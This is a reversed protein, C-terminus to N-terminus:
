GQLRAEQVPHPGQHRQGQPSQSYSRRHPGHVVNGTTRGEQSDTAAYTGGPAIYNQITLNFGAPLYGRATEVDTETLLPVHTLRFMFAEPHQEALGFISSLLAKSTAASVADGTLQPYLEFPGKVDVSFAQALGRNLIELLVDPRMGNTDVKVPLGYARLDDLFPLLGPDAMPEGGTVVIGDLWAARKKLFGRVDPGFLVPHREPRWALGANHCTPCRLNCGGMFLVCSARGPWDCLSLPTLGRLNGWANKDKEM